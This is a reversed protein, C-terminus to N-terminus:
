GEMLRSLVGKIQSGDEMILANDKAWILHVMARVGDAAGRVKYEHAVRFFEMSELVEAKNTSALLQILIPVGQEVMHVFHLADDYYTVTLRLKVLHDQEAQTMSQQSAALADLDLDSRRPKTKDPPAEQEVDTVPFELREEARALEARM